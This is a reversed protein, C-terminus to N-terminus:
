NSFVSGSSETSASPQLLTEVLAPKSLAEPQSWFGFMDMGRMAQSETNVQLTPIPEFDGETGSLSLNERMFEEFWSEATEIRKDLYDAWTEIRELSFDSAKGQKLGPELESQIKQILTCLDQYFVPDNEQLATQLPVLRVLQAELSQEQAVFVEKEAETLVRPQDRYQGIKSAILQMLYSAALFPFQLPNQPTATPEDQDSSTADNPPLMKVPKEQPLLWFFWNSPEVHSASSTQLEVRAEPALLVSDEIDDVLRVASVDAGQEKFLFRSVPSMQAGYLLAGDLLVPIASHCPMGLFRIKADARSVAWFSIAGVEDGIVLWDELIDNTFRPLPFQAQFTGEATLTPAIIAVSTVSRWHLITLCRGTSVDWLRLTNDRSGSVVMKGDPSFTVSMISGSHGKMPQGLPKQTQTEWLRVTYDLNQFWREGSVVMKSDPSFAVSLVENYVFWSGFMPQGFPKQTQVDWLRVDKGGSVVYLGDPSFAVSNVFSTHWVNHKWMAQGLPQQTQTDWLRVTEDSSGSVVIRGDPSFAVSKVYGTHGNMAQDTPQQAQIDWLHVSSDFNNWKGVSGSILVRGDPSFAVSKVGRTDYALRSYDFIGKSTVQGLAKQSQTDWLRVTCDHSGSVVTKGDSSFAVSMVGETHGWGAQPVIHIGRLDAGSLNAQYLITHTLIADRLNAESLDTYALIGYSLDAKYLVAHTLTAGYLNAESLDTHALIGYSLDAGSLQVKQWNQYGLSMRCANLLTAANSSAQGLTPEEASRYILNFLTNALLFYVPHRYSSSSDLLERIFDVVVPETQILCQKFYELAATEFLTDVKALDVISAAILYEYFSKHVFHYSTGSRSLPLLKVLQDERARAQAYFEEEDPLTSKAGPRKSKVAEKEQLKKFENKAEKDLQDLVADWVQYEVTPPQSAEFEVAIVGKAYISLALYRAMRKFDDVLSLDSDRGLKKRKDPNLISLREVEREIWQDFVITYFDYNVMYRIDQGNQILRPLSELFLQLVFPNSTLTKLHNNREIVEFYQQPNLLDDNVKHTSRAIIYKEIQELTFPLLEFRQYRKYQGVGFIMREESESVLYRRRCTVLIKLQGKKWGEGGIRKFLGTHEYRNSNDEQRLEDYGDLILLVKPEETQHPSAQKLKRIAADNLGYKQLQHEILGNLDRVSFQNLEIYIPLWHQSIRQDSVSFQFQQTLRWTVQLTSLTKGTGPEGLLLLLSEDRNLFQDIVTIPNFREPLTDKPVATEDKQESKAKCASAFTNLNLMLEELTMKEPLAKIVTPPLYFELSQIHLSLQVTTQEILIKRGVDGADALTQTLGASFQTKLQALESKLQEIDIRVVQKDHEEIYVKWGKPIDVQYLQVLRKVKRLFKSPRIGDIIRVVSDSEQLTIRWELQYERRLLQFAKDALYSGETYSHEYLGKLLERETEGFEELDRVQTMPETHYKASFRLYYQQEPLLEESEDVGFDSFHQAYKLFEDLRHHNIGGTAWAATVGLIKTIDSLKFLNLLSAIVQDLVFSTGRSLTLTGLVGWKKSRYFGTLATDTVKQLASKISEDGKSWDVVPWSHVKKLARAEGTQPDFAEVLHVMQHGLITQLSLCQTIKDAAWKQTEELDLGYAQSWRQLRESSATWQFASNYVFVKVDPIKAMLRYVKGLQRGATNFANPATLYISSVHKEFRKKIDAFKISSVTPELTAVMPEIGPSDFTVVQLNECSLRSPRSKDLECDWAHHFAMLQALWGGLSHGTLSFRYGKENAYLAVSLVLQYADIQQATIRGAILSLDAMIDRTGPKVEEDMFDQASHIGEKLWASLSEFYSNEENTEQPETEKKAKDAAQEEVLEPPLGETGRFALVCHGARPNVYLAAYLGNKKNLDFWQEIHWGPLPPSIQTPDTDNYVKVSPDGQRTQYVHMSLVAYEYHSPHLKFAHNNQYLKQNIDALATQSESDNPLDKPWKIRGLHTNDKLSEQLTILDNSELSATSLDLTVLKPDNNILNNQELKKSIANLCTKSQPDRPINSPWKIRGLHTNDKLSTLLTNLDNSDLPTTSLDLTVLKPDNNTLRNLDATDLM